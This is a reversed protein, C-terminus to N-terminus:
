LMVFIECICKNVCDIKNFFLFCLIKLEELECLIIQFQLLKKEDVECVVIVVDVVLLVVCMDYVFEVLGLCDLFMYSDGMFGMIVVMFGVIMKYYCVEVVVDGVLIGVDVSGVCVIVGM